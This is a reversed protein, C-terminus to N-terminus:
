PRLLASTKGNSAVLLLGSGPLRSAAVTSGDAFTGVVLVRGKGDLIRLPVPSSSSVRLGSNTWLFTAAVSTGDKVSTTCNGEAICVDNAPVIRLKGLNAGTRTAELRLVHSGKSLTFPNSLSSAWTTWSSTATPLLTAAAAGDVDLEFAGGGGATRALLRYSGTSDATVTYGTWDGVSIWGVDWSNEAASWEIDVGDNRYGSGNNSALGSSGSANISLSDHYAWGDAGLDYEESGFTGPVHIERWPITATSDSVQRFLGDLFDKHFTCNHPRLNHILETLGNSVTASDPKAGSGAWSTFANWGAPSAISFPAGRTDIRKLTWWSWGIKERNCMNVVQRDWENSNEGSEGMWMPISRVDRLQFYNNLTSSATANWYKHFSFVLKSDWPGLNTVDLIGSYENGYCNGEAIVLHNPDVSRITDTMRIFLTRMPTDDGSCWATSSGDFSWNTENLLDYGGVTTDDKYRAALHQWLAVAMTKNTDSDWLSPQSTDRDNITASIGQGGPAAHLDLFVRMRNAKCWTILSDTLRFGEAKWVVPLGHEMYLNWHMPLRVANFGWSALSDIDERTVLSDRWQQYFEERRSTGVVSDLYRQIDHQTNAFSTTNMMYSEQIMWAGLGMGRLQVYGQDTGLYKGNAGSISIPTLFGTANAQRAPGLAAFAALLFIPGTHNMM